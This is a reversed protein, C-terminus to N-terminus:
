LSIEIFESGNVAFLKQYLIQAASSCLYINAFLSSYNKIAKRGFRDKDLKRLTDENIQGFSKSFMLLCALLAGKM